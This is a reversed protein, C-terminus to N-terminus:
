TNILFGVEDDAISNRPSSNDTMKRYKEPCNGWIVVTM